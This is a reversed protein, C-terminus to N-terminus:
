GAAAARARAAALDARQALRLLEALREPDPLNAVVDLLHDYDTLGLRSAVAIRAAIRAAAVPYRPDDVDALFSCVYAADNLTMEGTDQLARAAKLVRDAQRGRLAMLLRNREDSARSNGSRDRGMRVYTRM